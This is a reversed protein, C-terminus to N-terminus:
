IETPGYSPYNGMSEYQNIEQVENQTLAVEINTPLNWLPMRQNSAEIEERDLMRHFPGDYPPNTPTYAGPAPWVPKDQVAIGSSSGMDVGHMRTGKMRTQRKALQELEEDSDDCHIVTEDDDSTINMRLDEETAGYVRSQAIHAVALHIHAKYKHLHEEKLKITLNARDQVRKATKKDNRIEDNAWAELDRNSKITSKDLAALAIWKGQMKNAM